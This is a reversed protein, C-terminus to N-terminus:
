EAHGHKREGHTRKKPDGANGDEEGDKDDNDNLLSVNASIDVGVNSYTSVAFSFMM